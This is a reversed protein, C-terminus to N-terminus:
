KNAFVRIYTERATMYEPKDLIEENFLIHESYGALLSFSDLYRENSRIKSKIERNTAGSQEIIMGQDILSAISARYLSVIGESYQSNDAQMEAIDFYHSASVPMLVEKEPLEEGSMVIDKETRRGSGSVIRFIILAALVSVGAIMLVWAGASLGSFFKGLAEFFKDLWSPTEPVDKNLESLIHLLTERTQVADPVMESM